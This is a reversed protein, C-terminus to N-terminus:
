GPYERNYQKTIRVWKYMGDNKQNYEQRENKIIYRTLLTSCAM